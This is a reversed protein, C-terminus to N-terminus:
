SSPGIRREWLNQLFRAISHKGCALRRIYKKEIIHQGRIDRFSDTLADHDPSASHFFCGFDSPSM